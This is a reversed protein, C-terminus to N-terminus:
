ACGQLYCGAEASLLFPFGPDGWSRRVASCSWRPMTCHASCWQSQVPVCFNLLPSCGTKHFTSAPVPHQPHLLGLTELCNNWVCDHMWTFSHLYYVPTVSYRRFHWSAPLSWNFAVRIKVQTVSSCRLLHVGSSLVLTSYSVRKKIDKFRRDRKYM